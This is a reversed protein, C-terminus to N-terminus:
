KYPEYKLQVKVEVVEAINETLLKPIKINYEKVNLNFTADASVKNNKITINGKSTVDKTQGHITMKGKVTTPYTGDKSFDIASLNQITGKFSAKPYKSSEVYNENFHEEMLAKEFKFAKMLMSVAIEGKSADLISLVQQNTSEINEVPAKSFFSAKGNRTIYKSQASLSFTVSLFILSFITTIQTKMFQNKKM